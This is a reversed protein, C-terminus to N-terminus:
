NAPTFPHPHLGPIGGGKSNGGSCDPGGRGGGGKGDPGGGDGPGFMAGLAGNRVPFGMYQMLLRLLVQGLIVVLLSLRMYM